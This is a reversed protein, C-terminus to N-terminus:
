QDTYLQAMGREMEAAAMMFAGIGLHNNVARPESIYYEYSGDRLRDGGLGSVHVTGRLTLLRNEDVEMFERTIAYFAKKAPAFYEQGIVGMRMAKLLFYTFMCSCSAEPFNGYDTERDVVQYWVGTRPSQYKVIAEALLRIQGCLESRDSEQTLHELTDVLACAYWGISRDWFNPSLGTEKDAWFQTRSEDWGHYYLGTAADRSHRRILEFQRIVDRMDGGELLRLYEAYFPQAMYLGDLWMQHPYMQKHWFGGETTRPHVTLQRRLLEAARRYKEKGTHRYLFLLAKGNNVHDLNNASADYEPISGDEQVFRDMNQRIYDFYRNDGTLEWVMELGRCIVGFDYEWKPRAVPFKALMSDAMWVSWRRSFIQSM